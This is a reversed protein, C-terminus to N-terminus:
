RDFLESIKWLAARGFTMAMFILSGAMFTGLAINFATEIMYIVGLILCFILFNILFGIM